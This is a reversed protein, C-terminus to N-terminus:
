GPENRPPATELFTALEADSVDCFAIYIEDAAWGETLLTALATNIFPRVLEECQKRRSSASEAPQGIEV